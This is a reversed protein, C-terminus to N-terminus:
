GDCCARSKLNVRLESKDNAIGCLGCLGVTCLFPLPCVGLVSNNVSNIWCLSSPFFM